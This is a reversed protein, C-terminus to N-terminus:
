PYLVSILLSSPRLNKAHVGSGRGVWATRTQPHSGGQGGQIVYNGKADTYFLDTGVRVEFLGPMSTTRVEDIKALQPIREGLTKRIVSEDAQAGLGLLALTAGACLSYLARFPSPKLKKATM